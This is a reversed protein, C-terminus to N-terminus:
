GNGGVKSFIRRWGSVPRPHSKNAILKSALDEFYYLVSSNRSSVVIPSGLNVANIALKEFNPIVSYIPMGLQEELDKVKIGGTYGVRNLVIRVKNKLNLNMLMEMCQKMNHISVLDLTSVMLIENAMELGPIVTDHFYNPSDIIIYNYTESLLGLVKEIDESRIFAAAEPNPPAPLIQLGSEHRICYNDLSEADINALEDIVDRISIKTSIGAMLGVNGSMLDLDVLVTRKGTLKRISIALNLAITTKGVGGKTSFISITKFQPKVKKEVTYLQERETERQVVRTLLRFLKDDEIPFNIVEKAGIRLGYRLVRKSDSNTLLIIGSKPFELTFVEAVAVGEEGPLDVNFLILDPQHKETLTFGIDANNTAGIVRVNPFKELREKLKNKENHDIILVTTPKM